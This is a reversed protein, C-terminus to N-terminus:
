SMVEESQKVKIKRTTCLRNRYLALKSTTYQLYEMHEKSKGFLKTFTDVGKSTCNYKTPTYGKVRILNFKSLMMM